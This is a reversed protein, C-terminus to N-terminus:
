SFSLLVKNSSGRAAKEKSTPVTVRTTSPSVRFTSILPLSSVIRKHPTSV